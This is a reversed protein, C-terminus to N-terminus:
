KLAPQYWYGNAQTYNSTRPQMTFVFRVDKGELSSLDIDIERVGGDLVEAWSGLNVTKGNANIYDLQFRVDCKKNDDLCGVQATFSQNKGIEIVPYIGKIYGNSAHNPHVWLTLKSVTKNELDAKDLLVIFGDEEDDEDGPCGLSGTGSSWSASCAYASFDYDYNANASISTSVKISTYFAVNGAGVGFAQGSDSYLKWESLYTGNSKPATMNISIDVTEGPKVESPLDYQSKAALNTGDVFRVTYDEDWTCSGSNKLRWTKVFAKQPDFATGDAVTVDSIFLAANCVPTPSLTPVSTQSATSTATSPAATNTATPSATPTDSPDAQAADQTQQAFLADLTGQVQKSIANDTAAVDAISTAVVVETAPACAALLFLAAVMLILNSKKM